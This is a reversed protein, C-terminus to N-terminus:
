GTGLGATFRQRNAGAALPSLPAVVPPRERAGAVIVQPGGGALAEGLAHRLGALDAV